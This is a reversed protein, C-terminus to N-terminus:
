GVKALQAKSLKVGAVVMDYAVASTVEVLGFKINEWTFSDGADISIATGKDISVTLSAAGRNHIFLDLGMCLFESLIDVVKNGTESYPQYFDRPQNPIIPINVLKQYSM